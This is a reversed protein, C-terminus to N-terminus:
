YTPRPSEMVELKKVVFKWSDRLSYIVRICYGSTRYEYAIERGEQKVSPRLKAGDIVEQDIRLGFADATFQITRRSQGDTISTLGLPGFRATLRENKLEFEQSQSRAPIIGSLLVAAVLTPLYLRVTRKM